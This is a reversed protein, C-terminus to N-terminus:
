PQFGELLILIATGSRQSTGFLHNSSDPYQAYFNWQGFFFPDLGQPHPLIDLFNNWRVYEERVLRVSLM